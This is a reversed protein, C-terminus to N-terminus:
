GQRRGTATTGSWRQLIALMREQGDELRRLRQDQENIREVIFRYGNTLGPTLRIERAVEPWTPAICELAVDHAEGVDSGAVLSRVFETNYQVATLDPLGAPFGIVNIGTKAILWPLSENRDNPEGSACAALVLVRPAAERAQMAVWRGRVIHGNGLLLGNEQGHGSWIVVDHRERLAQAVSAEVVAPGIVLEMAVGQIEALGGLEAGWRLPALGPTEPAIVCVSLKGM